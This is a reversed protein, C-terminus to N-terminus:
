VVEENIEVKVGERLRASLQASSDVLKQKRLVAKIATRADDTLEGAPNGSKQYYAEVEADSVKAEDGLYRDRYLAALIGDRFKELAQQYEPDKDVGQKQADLYILNASVMRDLLTIRVTDREPTGLAPLSVGVVASSNLMTNIDSFRIAQDGVRAIVDDDPATAEAAEASGVSEAMEGTQQPTRDCATLLGLGTTLLFAQVAHIIVRKM